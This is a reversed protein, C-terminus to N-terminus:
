KLETEVMTIYLECSADGITYDIEFYNENVSGYVRTTDKVHELDEEDYEPGYVVDNYLEDKCEELGKKAEEESAYVGHVGAYANANYDDDIGASGWCVTYVKM